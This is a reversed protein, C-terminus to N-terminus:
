STVTSPQDNSHSSAQDKQKGRNKYSDHFGIPMTPPTHNEGKEGSALYASAQSNGWRLFERWRQRDEFLRGNEVEQLSFNRKRMSMDVATGLGVYM